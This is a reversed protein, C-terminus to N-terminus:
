KDKPYQSVAKLSSIVRTKLNSLIEPLNILDKGLLVFSEFMALFLLISITMFQEVLTANSGFLRFISIVVGLIAFGNILKKLREQTEHEKEEVLNRWRLESGQLHKLLGEVYVRKNALEKSAYTPWEIINPSTKVKQGTKLYELSNIRCFWDVSYGQKTLKIEQNYLYNSLQQINLEITREAQESRALEYQADAELSTMEQLTQRLTSLNQAVLASNEKQRYGSNKNDLRNIIKDTALFIHAFQWRTMLLHPMIDTLFTSSWEQTSENTLSGKFFTNCSTPLSNDKSANNVWTAAYFQLIPHSENEGEKLPSVIAKQENDIFEIQWQNAHRERSPLKLTNIQFDAFYLQENENKISFLLNRETAFFEVDHQKAPMTIVDDSDEGDTIVVSVAYLLEQSHNKDDVQYYSDLEKKYFYLKKNLETNTLKTECDLLIRFLRKEQHLSCSLYPKTKQVYIQNGQTLDALTDPEEIFQANQWRSTFFLYYFQYYVM